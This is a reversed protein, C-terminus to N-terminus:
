VHSGNLLLRFRATALELSQFAPINTEFMWYRMGPIEEAEAIEGAKARRIASVLPEYEAFAAIDPSQGSKTKLEQELVVARHKLEEKNM